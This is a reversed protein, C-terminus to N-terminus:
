MFKGMTHHPTNFNRAWKKEISAFKTHRNQKSSIRILKHFNSIWMRRSLAFQIWMQIQGLQIHVNLEYFIRKYEDNENPNFSWLSHPFKFHFFYVFEFISYFHLFRMLIMYCVGFLVESFCIDICNSFISSTSEITFYFIFVLKKWIILVIYFTNDVSNLQIWQFTDYIAVKLLISNNESGNKSTNM